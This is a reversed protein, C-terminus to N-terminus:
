KEGAVAYFHQEIDIKEIYRFGSEKLLQMVVSDAIRHEVPPGYNSEEKKWELVVIKGQNKLIRMVEKLMTPIENLEHLVNAIFAFNVSEDCLKLDDEGSIITRINQLDNTEIKHDLEEIMEVSLDLGFVRGSDGVIEAAPISFYGIGCGIDAIFDGEQLGLIQLTKGPPLMERRQPNDLKHKKDTDDKPSM